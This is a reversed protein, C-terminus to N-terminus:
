TTERHPQWACDSWAPPKKRRLECPLAFMRSGDSLQIKFTPVECLHRSVVDYNLQLPGVITCEMGTVDRDYKHMDEVIECVDGVKLESM